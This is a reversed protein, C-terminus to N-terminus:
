RSFQTEHALRASWWRGNALLGFGFGLGLGLDFGLGLGSGVFWTPQSLDVCVFPRVSLRM